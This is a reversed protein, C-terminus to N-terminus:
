FEFKKKVEIIYDVGKNKLVNFKYEPFVNVAKELIDPLMNMDGVLYGKKVNKTMKGLIFELDKCLYETWKTYNRENYKPFHISSYMVDDVVRVLYKYGRESLNRKKRIIPYVFSSGNDSSKLIIACGFSEIFSGNNDYSIRHPIFRGSYGSNSLQNIIKKYISFECEQLSICKNSGNHIEELVRSAILSYRAKETLVPEQLINIVNSDIYDNSGNYSYHHLLNWSFIGNCSIPDHDSLTFYKEKFKFYLDNICGPDGYNFNARDMKLYRMEDYHGMEPLERVKFMNEVNEIHKDWNKRNNDYSTLIQKLPLYTAMKNKRVDFNKYVTM